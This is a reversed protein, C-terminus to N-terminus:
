RNGICVQPLGNWHRVVREPFYKRVGLRFRGQHLKLGNGRMRDSTVHSFLSVGVEGCGGKLCSEREQAEEEGCQVIGAGEAEGWLVQAVPGEHSRPGERSM